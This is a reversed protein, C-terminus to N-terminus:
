EQPKQEKYYGANKSIVAEGWVEGNYIIQVVEGPCAPPLPQDFVISGRKRPAPLEPMESPATEVAQGRGKKEESM